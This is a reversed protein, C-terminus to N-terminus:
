KNICCKKHKKGSGCKCKDNRKQVPNKILTKTKMDNHHKTVCDDHYITRDRSMFTEQHNFVDNQCIPCIGIRYDEPKKKEM